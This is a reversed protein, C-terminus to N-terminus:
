DPRADWPRLRVVADTGGGPAALLEAEGGGAAVLERVIALGLGSGGPTAGPGRWFKDFARARDAASLGPGQDIVHVEIWEPVATVRLEVRSGAASVDLANDILNDLVSEVAGPVAWAVAAAVTGTDLVVGREAALPEWAALREAVVAAVDCAAPQPTAGEARSLALLGEILRHLRDTEHLAAEVAVEAPSGPEVVDGLQEIRLRLATLPTRLQHSATGAFARQSDVLHEMRAAMTNFSAALARLEPPGHETDARSALDGDAIRETAGRLRRVPGTVTGSLVVALASAIGLSIVAVVILGRLQEDVRDSVVDAPASIQVAGLREDGALVPVAVYFLESGLLDSEREGTSPEGLTLVHVVEPWATSDTGVLADDSALVVIGSSDIVSVTVQEEAGYRRVLARLETSSGANGTELRESVRGALIFGDRELKTALRDHEVRRLHGALPIDHIALVFAVVGVLVLLLRRRM